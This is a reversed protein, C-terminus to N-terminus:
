LVGWLAVLPGGWLAVLPGEWSVQPLVSYYFKKWPTRSRTTLSLDALFETAVKQMLVSNDGEATM